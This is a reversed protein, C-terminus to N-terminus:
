KALEAVWAPPDPEEMVRPPLGLAIRWRHLWSPGYKGIFRDPTAYAPDALAEDLTIFRYGRREFLTLVAELTDTHLENAHILLIQPIDRHFAEQALREDWAIMGETYDLYARRLKALLEGDESARAKAYGSSFLWDSNEITFPAVRYGRAALFQDIQAKADATAGTHTFPHRFWLASLHHEKNLRTFTPEGKVIAAEFVALPVANGNVHGWTHNGLVIRADSWIRLANVLGDNIHGDRYLKDENVFAIAPAHHRRLAATMREATLAVHDPRDLGQSKPLDDFTLAVARPRPAAQPALALWMAAVAVALKM